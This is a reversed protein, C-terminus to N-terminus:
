VQADSDEEAHGPRAEDLDEAEAYLAEMVDDALDLGVVRELVSRLKTVTGILVRAPRGKGGALYQTEVFLEQDPM